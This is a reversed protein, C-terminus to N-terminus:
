VRSGRNVYFTRVPAVIKPTIAAQNKPFLVADTRIVQRIPQREAKAAEVAVEPEPGKEGRSCSTLLPFVAGGILLLIVFRGFAIQFHM